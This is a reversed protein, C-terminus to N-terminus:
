FWLRLGAVVRTEGVVEGSSRRLEATRGFAREWALGLYPAFQRTFEYRLRMGAEMSSLGSGIGRSADDKGHLEIHVVPQLVLRNTLLLSYETSFRAATRGGEGVYVLAAVEFWQPALGQVGFAVFSRAARPRLDQRVGAVLDWRPAFSHGVLAELSAAHTHGDSREGETQWWLRNIDGGIWGGAEWGLGTRGDRRWVEAREVLTYSYIDKDAAIHGTSPPRAAARDAASLAPVPTRPQQEGAATGVREHEHEAGPEHQQEPEQGAQAHEVHAHDAEQAGLPAILYSLCGLGAAVRVLLRSRM